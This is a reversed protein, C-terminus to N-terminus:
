QLVIEQFLVDNVKATPAASTVRALLEQRARLLAATGKLDEPRLERMYSQIYDVIRPMVAQVRAVDAASELELSVTMKLVSLRGAPGQLNVVLGPLNYYVYTKAPPPKQEAPVEEKKKFFFFYGGGGALLLVLLGAIVILMLKRGRPKPQAAAAAAGAPAEDEKAM